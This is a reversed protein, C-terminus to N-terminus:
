TEPTLWSIREALLAIHVPICISSTTGTMGCADAYCSCSRPSSTRCIQVGATAPCLNNTVELKRKREAATGTCDHDFGKVRHRNAFNSLVPINRKSTRRFEFETTSKRARM